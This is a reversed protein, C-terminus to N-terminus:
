IPTGVAFGIMIEAWAPLGFTFTSKTTSQLYQPITVIKKNLNIQGSSSSVVIASFILLLTIILAKSRYNIM